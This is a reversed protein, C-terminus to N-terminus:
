SSEHKLKTDHGGSVNWSSIWNKISLIHSIWFISDLVVVFTEPLQGSQKTLIAVQKIFSSEPKTFWVM